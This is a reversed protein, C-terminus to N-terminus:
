SIKLISKNYILFKINSLVDEPDYDKYLTSIKLIEEESIIEETGNKKHLEIIDDSGKFPWFEIYESKNIYGRIILTIGSDELLLIKKVKGTKKLGYLFLVKDIDELRKEKLKKIFSIVEKETNLNFPGSCYNTEKLITSCFINFLVIWSIILILLIDM